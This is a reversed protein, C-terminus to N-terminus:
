NRSPFEQQYKTAYELCNSQLKDIDPKVLQDYEEASLLRYGTNSDWRTWPKLPSNTPVACAVFLFPKPKGPRDWNLKDFDTELKAIYHVNFLHILSNRSSMTVFDGENMALTDMYANYQVQNAIYDGNNAPTWPVIPHHTVTPTAVIRPKHIIVQKVIM